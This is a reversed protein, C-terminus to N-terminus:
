YINMKVASNRLRLYLIGVLYFVNCEMKQNFVMFYKKQVTHSPGGLQKSGKM